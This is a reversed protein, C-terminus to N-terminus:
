ISEKILYVTRKPQNRAPTIQGVIKGEQELRKVAYRFHNDKLNCLVGMEYVTMPRDQLLELVVKDLIRPRPM